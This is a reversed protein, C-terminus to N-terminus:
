KFDGYKTRKDEQYCNNPYSINASLYQRPVVSTTPSSVTGNSSKGGCIERPCSWSQDPRQLSLKYNLCKMYLFDNRESCYIYMGMVFGKQIHFYYYLQLNRLNINQGVLTFFSHSYYEFGRLTLNHPIFM